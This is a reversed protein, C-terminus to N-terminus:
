FLLSCQSRAFIGFYDGTRARNANCISVKDLFGDHNRDLEKTFTRTLSKLNQSDRAPGDGTAIAAFDDKDYFLEIFWFNQRRTNNLELQLYDLAVNNYTTM